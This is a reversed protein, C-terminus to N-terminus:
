KFIMDHAIFDSTSSNLRPFAWIVPSEGGGHAIFSSLVSHFTLLFLSLVDEFIADSKRKRTLALM